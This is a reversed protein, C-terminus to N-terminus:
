MSLIFFEVYCTDTDAIVCPVATPNMPFFAVEGPYLRILDTDGSAKRVGVYNTADLNKLYCWHPEDVQGLPIATATVGALFTGNAWVSGTWTFTLGNAAQGIPTATVDAKFAGLSASFSIEDAM